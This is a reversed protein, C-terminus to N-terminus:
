TTICIIPKPILPKKRSVGPTVVTDFVKRALNISYIVADTGPELIRASEGPCIM